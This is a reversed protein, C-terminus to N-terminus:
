CNIPRKIMTKSYHLVLNTRSTFSCISEFDVDMDVNMVGYIEPMYAVNYAIQICCLFIM